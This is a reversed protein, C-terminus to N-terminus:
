CKLFGLLLLTIPCFLIVINKKFQEYKLISAENVDAVKYRKRALWASYDAAVRINRAGSQYCHGEAILREAYAKM